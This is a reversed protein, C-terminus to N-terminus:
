FFREAQLIDANPIQCMAVAVHVILSSYLHNEQLMLCFYIFLRTTPLQLVLRLEDLRLSIMRNSICAPFAASVRYFHLM